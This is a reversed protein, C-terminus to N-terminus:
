HGLGQNIIGRNAILYFMELETYNNVFELCGSVYKTMKYFIFVM